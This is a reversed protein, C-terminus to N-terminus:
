IYMYIYIARCGLILAHSVMSKGMLYAKTGTVNGKFWDQNTTEVRQFIHFDTPIIFNGVYLFIIWHEFGGVLIWQSQTDVL